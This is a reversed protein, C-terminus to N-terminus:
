GAITLPHDPHPLARGPRAAHDRQGNTVPRIKDRPLGSTVFHEIMIRNPCTFVDVAGLHRKMGMERM